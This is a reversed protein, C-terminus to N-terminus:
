DHNHFSPLQLQHQQQLRHQALNNDDHSSERIHGHIHIHCSPPQGRNNDDHNHIHHIHGHIRIHFSPLQHQGQISDDHNHITSIAMSVSISLPFSISGRSVIM